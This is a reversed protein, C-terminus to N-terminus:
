TRALSGGLLPTGVIGTVALPSGRRGAPGVSRGVTLGPAPPPPGATARHRWRRLPRRCSGAVGHMRGACGFAACLGAPSATPRHHAKQRHHAKPRRPRGRRYARRDVQRRHLVPWLQRALGLRCARRRRRATATRAGSAAAATATHRRRRQRRRHAGFRDRRGGATRRPAPAVTAPAAGPAPRQRRSPHRCPGSPGHRRDPGPCPSARSGAQRGVLLKVGLVPRPGLGDDAIAPALVHLVALLGLSRRCADAPPQRRAAPAATATSRISSCSCLIFLSDNVAVSSDSVTSTVSFPCWQSVSMNM